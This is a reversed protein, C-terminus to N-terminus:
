VINLAESESSAISFVKDFGAMKIIELVEENISFLVLIGGEHKLKKTMFLILRMGASSLYDVNTFDAYIKKHGENILYQLKKELTSSSVVDLRGSLRIVIKQNIEEIEIKLGNAM